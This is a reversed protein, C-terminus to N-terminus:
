RMNVGSDITVFKILFELATEAEPIPLLPYDHILGREEVFEVPVQDARAREVLKHSQPNLVDRTGSFVLLPGLGGFTGFLPSVEPRRPDDGGAWLRGAERLAAVSHWPDAPEIAGSAPDTLTLDVFPSILVLPLPDAGTAALRQAVALTYGGGSSDGMLTCGSWADHATRRALDVMGDFSERWSHEPALLYDPVIVTAALREALKAILAWHQKVITNVYSGGHTYVIRRGADSHGAKVIYVPFGIDESRDINVHRRLRAPPDPRDKQRRIQISEHLAEATALKRKSMRMYSVVLRHRLSTM